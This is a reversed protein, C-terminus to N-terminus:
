NANDITKLLIELKKQEKKLEEMKQTIEDKKDILFRKKIHKDLETPTFNEEDREAIEICDDGNYLSLLDDEFDIYYKYEELIPRYKRIVKAYEIFDNISM